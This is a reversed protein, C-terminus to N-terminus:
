DTLTGGILIRDEIQAIPQDKVLPQLVTQLRFPRFIERLFQIGVGLAQRRRALRRALAVGPLTEVLRFEMVRSFQDLAVLFHGFHTVDEGDRRTGRLFAIPM